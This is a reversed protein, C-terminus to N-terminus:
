LLKIEKTRLQGSYPPRITNERTECYGAATCIDMVAQVSCANANRLSCLFPYNLAVEDANGMRQDQALSLEALFFRLFWFCTHIYFRNPTKRTLVSRVSVIPFYHM